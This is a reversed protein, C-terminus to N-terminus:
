ESKFCCEKNYWCSLSHTQNCHCTHVVSRPHNVGLYILLPCSSTRRKSLHPFSGRPAPEARFLSGKHRATAHSHSLLVGPVAAPGPRSCHRRDTGATTLPSREAPPQPQRHRLERRPQGSPWPATGAKPAGEATTRYPCASM